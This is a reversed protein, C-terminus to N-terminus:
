NGQAAAVLMRRFADAEESLDPQGTEEDLCCILRMEAPPLIKRDLHRMILSDLGNTEQCASEVVLGVGAGQRVCALITTWGSIELKVDLKREPNTKDLVKQLQRRIGSSQEPLVLPLGFLQEPKIKADALREVRDAEPGNSACILVLPDEFLTEIYMPRRAIARIAPEDHSVAALDFQGSAVGEIRQKSGPTSVRLHLDPQDRLFGSVARQVFGTLARQGCAFLVDPRQIDLGRMFRILKHYRRVIERVAGQVRKGEDTALWTKGERRLWPRTVRATAQLLSMRKSMSPQNLNLQHATAAADGGNGLLRIFTELLEFSLSAKRPM